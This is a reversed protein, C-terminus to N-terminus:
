LRLDEVYIGPYDDANFKFTSDLYDSNSKLKDVKMTFRSGDKAFIKVRKLQKSGKVLTLRM